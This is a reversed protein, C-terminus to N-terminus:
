QNDDYQKSYDDQKTFGCFVDDNFYLIIQDGVSVALYSEEDLAIEFTEGNKTLYTIYFEEVTKPSKIGYHAVGCRMDQITANVETYQIESDDELMAIKKAEEEALFEKLSKGGRRAKEVKEQKIALIFMIVFFAIIALGAIVVSIKELIGM